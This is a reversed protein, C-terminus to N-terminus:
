IAFSVQEYIIPKPPPDPRPPNLIDEEWDIVDDYFVFKRVFDQYHCAIEYVSLEKCIETPIGRSYVIREGTKQLYKSIYDVIIGAKMEVTTIKKFDNRGFRKAFFSNRFTKQMRKQKTSYDMFESIEGVMEGDPIYMLAHFHLRGTKPAHEFVGM